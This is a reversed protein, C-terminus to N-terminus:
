PLEVHDGELDDLYLAGNARRRWVRWTEMRNFFRVREGLETVRDYWTRLIDEFAPAYGFTLLHGHIWASAGWSKEPEGNRIRLIRM